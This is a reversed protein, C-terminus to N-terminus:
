GGEEESGVKGGREPGVRGGRESRVEEERQGWGRGASHSVWPEMWTRSSEAATTWASISKSRCSPPGSSYCPCAGALRSWTGLVGLM